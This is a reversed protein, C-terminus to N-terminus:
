KLKNRGRSEVQGLRKIVAKDAYGKKVQEFCQKYIKPHRSELAQRLLHMDVAKDEDKDSHYSLGFDIFHLSDSLVMNSTTLDGHMIGSKHLENLMRGIENSVALYNINELTESLRDGAIRSMVITNDRVSILKPCNVPADKLVKAERRTRRRRLEKDIDPHRYSKAIRTKVINDGDVYISAEAGISLLEM